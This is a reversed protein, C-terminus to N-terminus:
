ALGLLFTEDLHQIYSGVIAIVAAHKAFYWESTGRRDFHRRLIAHVSFEHQLAQGRTLVGISWIARCTVGHRRTQWDTRFAALRSAPRQTSGVKVSPGSQMVYIWQECRGKLRGVHDTGRPLPSLDSRHERQIELFLGSTTARSTTASLVPSTKSYINHLSLTM